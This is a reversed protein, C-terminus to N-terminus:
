FCLGPVASRYKSTNETKLKANKIIRVPNESRVTYLAFFRKCKERDESIIFLSSPTTLALAANGTLMSVPIDPRAQMSHRSEHATKAHAHTKKIENQFM